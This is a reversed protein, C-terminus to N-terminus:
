QGHDPADRKVADARGKALALAHQTPGRDMEGQGRPEKRIDV